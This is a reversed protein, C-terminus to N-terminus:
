TGQPDAPDRRDAKEITHLPNLSTMPEQFVMAVQNGRVQRLGTSPARRGAGRRPLPDLQRRPPQRGPLAAAAPDLARDGVQRLGIRRGAGPDRRPRGRVVGPRGALLRRSGGLSFQVSLDHVQLLPGSPPSSDDFPRARTSPTARPKRFSSWSRCCYHLCSSRPSRSGPRRLNNKGQALLDGLSPSGPPLGFGLFDLSTLSLISGNLIFPMFTLSAVMANPLVHRFMITWDGVGLAQRRARLRPQARAPVRRAGRRGAVDVPVAAAPRAAVLLQTRGRAALIILLYLQPMGSWIEIARQSILDTWGGFYGQAGGAVVGIISSLVTLILGFLV